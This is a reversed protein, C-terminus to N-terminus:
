RKSSSRFHAIGIREQSAAADDRVQQLAEVGGRELLAQAEEVM